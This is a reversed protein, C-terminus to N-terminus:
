CADKKNLRKEWYENSLIGYQTPLTINDLRELSVFISVLDSVKRKGINVFTSAVSFAQNETLKIGEIAKIWAGFGDFKVYNEHFEKKSPLPVDSKKYKTLKELMESSIFDSYSIFIPKIVM